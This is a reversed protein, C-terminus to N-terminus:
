AEYHGNEFIRSPEMQVEDFVENYLYTENAGKLTSEGTVDFYLCQIPEAYIPDDGIETYIASEVPEIPIKETRTRKIRRIRRRIFIVVFLVVICIGGLIYLPLLPFSASHV